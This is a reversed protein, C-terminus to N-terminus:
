TGLPRGGKWGVGESRLEGVGRGDLGGVGFKYVGAWCDARQLRSPWLHNVFLYNGPQLVLSLETTLHPPPSPCGRGSGGCGVGSGAIVETGKSCDWRAM